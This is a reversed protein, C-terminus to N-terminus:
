WWERLHPPILFRPRRFMVISFGLVLFVSLLALGPVTYWLPRVFGFEDKPGEPIFPGIVLFFVATWGAVIMTPMIRVADKSDVTLLWGFRTSDPFDIEGRWLRPLNRTAFILGAVFIAVAVLSPTNV